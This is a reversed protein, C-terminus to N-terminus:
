NPKMIIARFNGDIVSVGIKTGDTTLGQVIRDICYGDALKIFTSSGSSGWHTAGGIPRDEFNKAPRMSNNYFVKESPDRPKYNCFPQNKSIQIPKSQFSIYREAGEESLRDPYKDKRTFSNGIKDNHIYVVGDVRDPDRVVKGTSIDRPLIKEGIINELNQKQTKRDFCHKISLTRKGVRFGNCNVESPHKPDVFVVPHVFGERLLDERLQKL